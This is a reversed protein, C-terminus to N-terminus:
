NLALKLYEGQNIEEILVKGISTFLKYYTSKIGDKVEYYVTIEGDNNVNYFKVNNIFQFYNLYYFMERIIKSAGLPDMKILKKNIINKVFAFYEKLTKAKLLENKQMKLKEEYYIPNCYGVLMDTEKLKKAFADDEFCNYNNTSFGFKIRNIDEYGKTLDAIIKCDKLYIIVYAHSGDDVLECKIKFEQLLKYFIKAWSSCIIYNNKLNELDLEEQYADEKQKENYFQYEPNYIFYQGSRLYLYRAIVFEDYYNKLKIENKLQKLLNM